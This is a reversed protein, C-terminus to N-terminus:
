PTIIMDSRDGNAAITEIKTLRENQGDISISTVLQQVNTDTPQLTIRWRAPTGTFDVSYYQELAPLNGSLTARISEVFAQIEPHDSLSLNHTEGDQVIDLQNGTVVLSGPTPTTTIKEIHDPATYSITGSSELPETLSALYKDETFHAQSHTVRGLNNMVAALAEDSQAQAAIPILLCLALIRIGSIM